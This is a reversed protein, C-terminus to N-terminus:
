RFIVKRSQRSSYTSQWTSMGCLGRGSAPFVFQPHKPCSTEHQRGDRSTTSIRLADRSYRERLRIDGLHQKRGDATLGALRVLSCKKKKLLAPRDKRAGSDQKRVDARRAARRMCARELACQKNLFTPRIKSRGFDQKRVDAPRRARRVCALGVNFGESQLWLCRYVRNQLITLIRNACAVFNGSPRVSSRM